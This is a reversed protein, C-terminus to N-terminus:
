SGALINVDFYKGLREANNKTPALQVTGSFAGKRKTIDRVEAAGFNMPFFSGDVVDVFGENKDIFQLKLVTSVGM